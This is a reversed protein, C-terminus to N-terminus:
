RKPARVLGVYIAKRTFLLAVSRNASEQEAIYTLVSQLEGPYCAETIIEVNAPCASKHYSPFKALLAEFAAPRNYSAPRDLRGRLIPFTKLTDQHLIWDPQGGRKTRIRNRERENRLARSLRSLIAVHKTGLLICKCRNLLAISEGVSEAPLQLTRAVLDHDTPIIGTGAHDQSQLVQLVSAERLALRPKYPRPLKLTM